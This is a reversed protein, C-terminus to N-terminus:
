QGTPMSRSTQCRRLTEEVATRAGAYVYGAARAGGAAACARAGDGAADAARMVLEWARVTPRVKLNREAEVLARAPDAGAALYLEAAHDAFAEPYKALLDDYRAVARERWPRAEEGRGAEGLIRALQAAYDPDETTAALPTLLAVARDVNGLAAEVEALHGRAQAHQPLRDHAAALWTRARELQDERMWMLGRQFEIWAVPFPSVDRYGAVAEAFSREAEVLEGRAAQVLALGGLSLIDRHREVLRRRIVLADDNRGIAQLIGARVGETASVDVGTREAALLDELAAQFRHLAARTRARAIWVRGDKPAEDVLTEALAQNAELDGIRGFLHAREGRLDLLSLRESVSLARARASRELSAIGAELNGVAIAPHTTRRSATATRSPAPVPEDASALPRTASWALALSSVTLRAAWRLARPDIM